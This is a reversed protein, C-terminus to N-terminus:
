KSGNEYDIVTKASSEIIHIVKSQIAQNAREVANDFGENPLIETTYELRVWAKDNNIEIQHTVGLTISDAM